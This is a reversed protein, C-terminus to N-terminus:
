KIEQVEDKQINDKKNLFCKVLYKINLNKIMENM